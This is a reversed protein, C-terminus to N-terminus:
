AGGVTALDHEVLAGVEPIKEDGEAPKLYGGRAEFNEILEPRIPPNPGIIEDVTPGIRQAIEALRARDLGFCRIANEGLMLRLEDEPVGRFADQLWQRTHPWTSEFHPYDRGFLITKVGLEHRMEVEAKHIFSAGAICNTQWYESPKRTAPVHARRDDYVQDLFQLTAPIWDVRIETLMLRLGPHRDFVGGLTLQWLPRRSEVNRNVWQTFFDASEERVAGAHRLMQEAETSGAAAAAAGYIDEIVRFVVGQETGFGAHAVVAIGREECATWYPEWYEDFLPPMGSHTMYHPAYTAAFGHDAIWHIEAVAADLDVCPGVAATLLFRDTAFGFADAAWRNWAQAGAQWAELPYARNTSNHFLDGLRSDGHFVFEAAIGERDMEALRLEPDHLGHWGTRHIERHEELPALAEKRAGLLQVAMAYIANDDHLSPILDRFRPDLYEPWLEKPIGAHSDSSIILLRDDM